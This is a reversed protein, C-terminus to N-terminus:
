SLFHPNVFGIEFLSKINNLPCETWMFARDPTDVASRTGTGKRKLQLAAHCVSPVSQNITHTGATGAPDDARFPLVGSFVTQPSAGYRWHLYQCIATNRWVRVLGAPPRPMLSIPIGYFFLHLFLSSTAHQTGLRSCGSCTM